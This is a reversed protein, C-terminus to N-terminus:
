PLAPVTVDVTITSMNYMKCLASIKQNSCKLDGFDFDLHSVLISKQKKYEAGNRLLQLPQVGVDAVNSINGARLTTSVWNPGYCFFSKGGCTRIESRITGIIINFIDHGIPFGVFMNNSLICTEPERIYGEGTCNQHKDRAKTPSINIRPVGDFPLPRVMVGDLDVYSGGYNRMVTYRVFDSRPVVSSLSQYVQLLESEGALQIKPDFSMPRISTGNLGIHHLYGVLDWGGMNWFYIWFGEPIHALYSRLALEIMQDCCGTFSNDDLVRDVGGYGKDSPLPRGWVVHLIPPVAGEDIPALPSYAGNRAAYVTQTPLADKTNAKALIKPSIDSLVELTVVNGMDSQNQAIGKRESSHLM